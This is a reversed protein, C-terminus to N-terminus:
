HKEFYAQRWLIECRGDPHWSCSTYLFLLTQGVARDTSITRHYERFFSVELEGKGHNASNYSKLVKNLRKFVFTWWGVLPGYDRICAPIHTAYHHNPKM